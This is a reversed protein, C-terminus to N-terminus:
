ETSKEPGTQIVVGLKIAEDWLWVYTADKKLVTFEANYTRNLNTSRLILNGKIVNGAASPAADLVLSYYKQVTEVFCGTTKDEQVEAIGARYTHSVPNCATQINGSTFDLMERQGVILCVGDHALFNEQYPITNNRNCSLVCVMILALAAFSKINTKM